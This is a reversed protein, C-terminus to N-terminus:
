PYDFSIGMLDVVGNFRYTYVLRAGGDPAIRWEAQQLSGHDYSPTVILTDNRRQKAHFEFAKTLM